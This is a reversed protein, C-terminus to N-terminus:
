SNFFNVVDKYVEDKNLENLLEHRCNEYIKLKSNVNNKLYLKHLSKVHKGNSGVPDESGVILFLKKQGVNKIGDNANNCNLIMSRYFGFPFSGGCYEDALYAKFISEDRTFWNGNEFKKDYSNICMKELLGGKSSDNKFLSLFKCAMGGLKMIASSGNTTGCLVCKEISPAIQILRQCLLSGYSHAFVYLPLAYTSNTFAIINQIDQLTETYIDEEGFGFCSKSAATLGHGRLDTTIAIFGQKNLHKAFDDYRGCHEMMGHLILVVAKPSEVEEYINTNLQLGHYGLIKINKPYEVIKKKPTKLKESPMKTSADKNSPKNKTKDSKKASSTTKSKKNEPKEVTQESKEM